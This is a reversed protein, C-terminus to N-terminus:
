ALLRHVTSVLHEFLFPKALLEDPPVIPSEEAFDGGAYASMFLVRLEPRKERLRRAVEWGNMGPMLLDSVLLDIRDLFAEGIRVGASGSDALLVQFGAAALFREGLDRIYFEDEVLLITPQRQSAASM